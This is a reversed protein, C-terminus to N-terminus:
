WSVNFSSAPPLNATDLRPPTPRQSPHRTCTDEHDSAASASLAEWRSVTRGCEDCPRANGTEAM